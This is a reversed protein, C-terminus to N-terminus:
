LLERAPYGLRLARALTVLALEPTIFAINTAFFDGALEVGAHASDLPQKIQYREM